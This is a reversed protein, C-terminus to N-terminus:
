VVKSPAKRLRQSMRRSATQYGLTRYFAIAGQNFEWVNLEVSDAGQAVAWQQAREMLARGLGARRFADKVVLSDIVAYRRPVLIPVELPQRIFVCVLGALQEDIEAVFLGVSKDAILGLVYSRDRVLGAPKQFIHPLNTRHLSDVEEFLARLADYDSGAAERIHLDM